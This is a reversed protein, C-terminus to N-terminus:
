IMLLWRTEERSSSSEWIARLRSSLYLGARVNSKAAWELAARINDRELSLRNLWVEQDGGQLAPDLRRVLELFYELHRDRMGREEGAEILKEQAYSRVVEHSRYRTEQESRPYVVIFSKRLLASTLALSDTMGVAQASSLSWGGIFVSLQRLFAREAETLLNWGWDISARLTQQRPLLARTNSALLDFSRNLQKAIEELSFMDVHAAAFEIALPIGDLRNCIRVVERVNEKTIAFNTQVLAARASFLQVAGYGALEDPSRIDHSDPIALPPVHYLAEGELHLVERSTALIGLRPCNMLLAEALQACADLLHECNDLVLLMAKDQLAQVLLESIPRSSSDPIGLCSAVTEAVLKEDSLSEFPVFRIGESFQNLLHQAAQIALRTKGIGGPGILTVLRNQKVLRVVEDRERDRGIFTTLHVPLNHKPAIRQPELRKPQLLAPKFDGKRIKRYLERTEPQPDLNLERRLLKELTQYQQLAATQQDTMAYLQMLKRHLSENMPDIQIMSQTYPIAAQAYNLSLYAEILRDLASGFTLRLAEGKAMVWDNFNAGGKLSFGSMFEGRYLKTADALLPIQAEPNSQQSARDLLAHFEQVDVSLDAQPNLYITEHEALIWGEGIFQTVEWLTHRLNALAKGADYETWLLSGLSERSHRQAPRETHSVALYALLALVARRSATVPRDGLQFQPTGILQIALRM